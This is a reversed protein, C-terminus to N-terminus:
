KLKAKLTNPSIGLARATQVKNRGMQEYAWRVYRATLAELPEVETFAAPAGSAPELLKDFDREDLVVAREIVNELERVNGPWPHATLVRRQRDDLRWPDQGRARTFRYIMDNALELVDEPHERLPPVSIRLVNLRYFLDERFRGDRIERRLDRHTAALVRVDVRIERTGGLPTFTREQLVRLLKAQLEIPIEAVEDLFLTGGDAHEFVGERTRDAGTFAGKEHGFLQSDLLNENFTACSVAFFAADRRPSAEHITRAVIEKGTGTEGTILVRADRDAGAKRIFERVAEMAPSKGSLFRAGFEQYRAVEALEASGLPAPDLLRRIAAPYADRDQFKFFRQLCAQVYEALLRDAERDRKGAALALLRGRNAGRASLHDAVVHAPSAASADAELVACDEIRERFPELYDGRVFWFVRAGERKLKALPALVEDIPCYVGVGTIYLDCPGDDALRELTRGIRQASTIELRAEPAVDLVVAAALAGDLSPYTIITTQM